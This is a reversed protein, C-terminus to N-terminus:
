VDDTSREDSTARTLSLVAKVTASAGITSPPSMV